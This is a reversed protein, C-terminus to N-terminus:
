CFQHDARTATIM